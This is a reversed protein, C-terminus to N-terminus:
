MNKYYAYFTEILLSFFSPVKIVWLAAQKKLEQQSLWRSLNPVILSGPSHPHSNPHRDPFLSSSGCRLPRLPGLSLSWTHQTDSQPPDGPFM